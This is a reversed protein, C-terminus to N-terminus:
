LRMRRREEAAAQERARQADMRNKATYYAPWYVTVEHLPTPTGRGHHLEARTMGLALCLEAEFLPDVALGRPIRWAPEWNVADSNM